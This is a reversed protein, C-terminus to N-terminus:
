ECMRVRQVPIYSARYYDAVGTNSRAVVDGTTADVIALASSEASCVLIYQSDMWYVSGRRESYLDAPLEIHKKVLMRHNDLDLNFILIRSRKNLVGNDFMMYDGDSTVHIAHQGSFHASDPIAFDGKDGLKWIVEGSNSNVKWIQSWDRFSVLYHGDTDISVTNAHGFEGLSDIDLTGDLPNVEDFVSWRWVIKGQKDMRIVADGKITRKQGGKFIFQRKDYAITLLTSDPAYRIEHHAEVPEPILNLDIDLLKRGNLDFEYIHDGASREQAPRGSLVLITNAETWNTLKPIGPVNQYWTPDGAYDTLFIQGDLVDNRRFALHRQSLIYGSTFVEKDKKWPMGLMVKQFPPTKFTGKNIVSSDPEALSVVEYDYNKNGKLFNLQLYHVNAAPSISTCLYEQPQTRIWYKVYVGTKEDTNVIMRAQPRKLSDLILNVIGQSRPNLFGPESLMLAAILLVLVGAIWLILTRKKAM